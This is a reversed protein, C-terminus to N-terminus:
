KKSESWLSAAMLHIVRAAATELLEPGRRMAEALCMPGDTIAFLGSVGCDYLADAGVGLSGALVIVPIGSERACAAVGLVTKGHATQADCRGEGTIVFDAGVMRERLNLARIVIDTGRKLEARLFAVSGAGLGGAAGAGPLESVDVGLDRRVIEAFHRLGADLTRVMEPTAGKQPGFVASAGSVGCLPNSVDCAVTFTCDALREDATSADIRSLRSLGAGGRPIAEDNEDTLAFGLAQAMGAGGDNTASGGICLLFEQCGRDLADRILQGAGYTSAYLPNRDREGILCLGSAEAM